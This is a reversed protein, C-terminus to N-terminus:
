GNRPDEGMKRAHEDYSDRNITLIAILEDLKARTVGIRAVARVPVYSLQEAQGRVEDPTGILAPPTLQGITLIFGGHAAVDWQCVFTNAYLIPVEEVGGWVVPVELGEEEPSM